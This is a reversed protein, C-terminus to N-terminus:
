NEDLLGRLQAPQIGYQRRCYDCAIELVEGSAYLEELDARPLTSLGAIIRQESCNCGFRLESEGVEAYPMGYLLEALLARPESAGKELLLSMSEFDKLRETMVMLPGEALEPLLQVIYGGAVMADGTGFTGVSIMSVVQESSQMYSMIAESIGGGEPVAVVGQHIAGNHMGRAVQLRAEAGLVFGSAGSALQILGRTWPTEGPSAPNADAIMRSKQDAAQLVAQVRLDPAMTERILVSGTILEAFLPGLEPHEEAQATAAARALISTEATIVRFAGDDTIARVVRDPKSTPTSVSM